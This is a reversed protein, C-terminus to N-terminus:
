GGKGKRRKRGTKGQGKADKDPGKQIMRVKRAREKPMKFEILTWACPDKITQVSVQLWQLLGSRSLVTGNCCKNGFNLISHVNDGMTM